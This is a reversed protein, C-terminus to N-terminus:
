ATEASTETDHSYELMTGLVYRHAIEKDSFTRSKEDAIQVTFTPPDDSVAHEVTLEIAGNLYVLEGTYDNYSHQKWGDPLPVNM